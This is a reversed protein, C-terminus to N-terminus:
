MIEFYDTSGPPSAAAGPRTGLASPIRRRPGSGSRLALPVSVGPPLRPRGPAVPGTNSVTTAINQMARRDAEVLPAFSPAPPAHM